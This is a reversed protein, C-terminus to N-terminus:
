CLAEDPFPHKEDAELELSHPVQGAYFGRVVPVRQSSEAAVPAAEVQISSSPRAKAKPRENSAEEFTGEELSVPSLVPEDAVPVEV